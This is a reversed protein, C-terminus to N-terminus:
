LAHSGGANWHWNWLLPCGCAENSKNFGVDRSEIFALQERITLTGIILLSSIIFQLIILGHSFRLSSGGQSVVNTGSKLGPHSQFFFSHDGPLNRGDPRDNAM